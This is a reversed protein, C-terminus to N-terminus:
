RGESEEDELASLLLRAVKPADARWAAEAEPVDSQTTESLEDLQAPTWDSV